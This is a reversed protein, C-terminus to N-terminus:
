ILIVRDRLEVLASV